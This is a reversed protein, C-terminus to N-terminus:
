QKSSSNIFSQILASWAPGPLAGEVIRGNIYFTPTAAIDLKLGEEIDSLLQSETAPDTMCARLKERDFGTWESLQEAIKGAKLEPQHEFITEYFKQFQGDKSACILARSADCAAPHGRGETGRNCSSDMPFNRYVFRVKDKNAALVPHLAQAGQRCHPCQFDSFKVITVPANEPGTSLVNGTTVLDVPARTMVSQVIDQIQEKTIRVGGSAAESFVAAIVLSAIAATGVRKTIESDVFLAAEHRERDMTLLVFVIINISDIALCFLCKEKIIVIMVILYFLSAALSIASMIRISPHWSKLQDTLQAYGAFLLMLVYWGTAISSLPVGNFVEAYSSM